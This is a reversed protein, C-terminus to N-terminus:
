SQSWAAIRQDLVNSYAQMYHAQKRLRGQEDVPLSAFIPTLTFALLKNLREDLESKEAVVRQQHPQLNAINMTNEPQNKLDDM